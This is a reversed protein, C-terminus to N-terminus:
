EEMIIFLRDPGGMKSGRIRIAEMTYSIARFPIRAPEPDMFLFDLWNRIHM